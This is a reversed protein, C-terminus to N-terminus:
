EKTADWGRFQEMENILIELFQNIPKVAMMKLMPNLDANLLVKVEAMEKGTGYINLILTFDNKKLANGTFVVKSFRVKETLGVTVTGIASVSFSCSERESYWNSIHTRTAFQEFNRLDTVFNFAEEDTCTLKGMRSEFFSIDSMIRENNYLLRGNGQKQKVEGGM